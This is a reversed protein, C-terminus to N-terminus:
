KPQVGTMKASIPISINYRSILSVECTLPMTGNNKMKDLHRNANNRTNAMTRTRIPIGTTLRWSDGDSWLVKEGISNEYDDSSLILDVELEKM